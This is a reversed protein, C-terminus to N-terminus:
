SFAKEKMIYEILWNKKKKRESLLSQQGRDTLFISVDGQQLQGRGLTLLGLLFHHSQLPFFVPEHVLEFLLYKNM